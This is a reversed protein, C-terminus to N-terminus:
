FALSIETKIVAHPHVCTEHVLTYAFTEPSAAQLLLQLHHLGSPATLRTLKAVMVM